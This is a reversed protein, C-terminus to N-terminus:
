RCIKKVIEAGRKLFTMYEEDSLIQTKIKKLMEDTINIQSNQAKGLNKQVLGVIDDINCYVGDEVFKGTTYIAYLNFWFRKDSTRVNIQIGRELRYEIVFRKLENIHFFSTSLLENLNERIVAVLKELDPYNVKSLMKELIGSLKLMFLKDSISLETKEEISPLYAMVNLGNLTGIIQSSENLDEFLSDVCTGPILKGKGVVPFSQSIFLNDSGIAQLNDCVKVQYIVLGFFSVLVYISNNKVFRVLVHSGIDHQEKLVSYLYDETVISVCDDTSSNKGSIIFNIINTYEEYRDNINSLKCHWEYAIKAILRKIEDSVFISLQILIQQEIDIDNLNLPEVKAEQFGKFKALEEIPALLTSNNEDRIPRRGIISSNSIIKKVVYKKDNIKFKAEYAPYQKNKGKINLHNRIFSLDNIIKSEFMDSFKNNHEITCVNKNKIKVNTLGDPIIDSESLEVNDAAGKGCYICKTEM